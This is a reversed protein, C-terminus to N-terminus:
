LVDFESEVPPLGEAPHEIPVLVRKSKGYEVFDGFTEHFATKGVVGEAQAPSVLKREVFAPVQGVRLVLKDEAISLCNEKWKRRGRRGDIMKFGPVPWGHEADHWADAHLANLWRKFLPTMRLVQSRQEPTLAKPLTERGSEVEDLNDFEAQVTRLQWEAHDVCHLQARCWECQKEGPVYTPAEHGFAIKEVTKASKIVTDGFRLIDLLSMVHLGGAAPIRPQEIRLDIRLEDLSLNEDFEKRVFTEWAGLAYAKLQYSDDPYVPVGQGYKWDFIVIHREEISWAIVDATGFQGKGAWPSIDVQTEVRVEWGPTNRLGEVYHMGDLAAEAFEISFDFWEDEVWVGGGVLDYPDLGIDLCMAVYHHFATGEKAEWSSEDPIKDCLLVSGLCRVWRDWTSPGMSSHEIRDSM